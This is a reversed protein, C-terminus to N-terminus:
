RHRGLEPGWHREVPLNHNFFWDELIFVNGLAVGRTNVQSQRKKAAAVLLM